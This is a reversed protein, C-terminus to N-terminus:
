AILGLESVGRHDTPLFSFFGATTAAAALALPIAAEKAASRLAPRLDGCLYRETRYRVGFQIAFDIGMGTFLVAFAVLILNLTGVLSPGAAATVILGVLLTIFVALIIRASGLALWALLLVSLVTLATNLAAGETITAFEEDAMPVPGTLRVSAGHAPDINLNA